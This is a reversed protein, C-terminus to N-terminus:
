SPKRKVAVVRVEILHPPAEPGQAFLKAMDLHHKECLVHLTDREKREEDSYFRAKEFEHSSIASEMRRMIFKLRELAQAIEEPLPDREEGRFVHRISEIRYVLKGFALEEGFHFVFESSGVPFRSLERGSSAEIILGYPKAPELGTEVPRAAGSKLWERAAVLTVGRKILLQAGVCDGERLLGL